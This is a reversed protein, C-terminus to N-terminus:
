KKTAKSDESKLWGGIMRGVEDNMKNIVSFRHLSDVQDAKGRKYTFYGLEFYLKFLMRLKEHEIDLNGLTTKKIRRKYAETALGYCRYMTERIENCLAYKEHRPADSLYMNVQKILNTLKLMLTADSFSNTGKTPVKYEEEM